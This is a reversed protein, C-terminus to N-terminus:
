NRLFHLGGHSTFFGFLEVKVRTVVVCTLKRRDGAHTSFKRSSTKKKFLKTHRHLVSTVLSFNVEHLWEQSLQFPKGSQLQKCRNFALLWIKANLHALLSAGFQRSWNGTPHPSPPQAQNFSLRSIQSRREYPTLLGNEFEWPQVPDLMFYLSIRAYRKLHLKEIEKPLSAPTTPM